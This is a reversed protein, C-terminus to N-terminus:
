SALLLIEFQTRYAISILNTISVPDSPEPVVMKEYDEMEPGAEEIDDEKEALRKVLEGTATWTFNGKKSNFDMFAKVFFIAAIVCPIVVLVGVVVGIVVLNANEECVFEMTIVSDTCLPM